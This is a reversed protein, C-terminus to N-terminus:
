MSEFIGVVAKILGLDIKNEHMEQSYDIARYNGEEDREITVPIGNVDVVIHHVYGFRVTHAKYTLEQDKYTVPIEITEAM